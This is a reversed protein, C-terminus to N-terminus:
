SGGRIFGIALVIGAVVVVIAALRVGVALMLGADAVAARAADVLMTVPGVILAGM